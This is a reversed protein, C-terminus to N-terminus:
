RVVTFTITQSWPTGNLDTAVVTVSHRGSRNGHVGEGLTLTEGRTGSVGDAPTLQRTGIMWRISNLIFNEPNELSVAVPAGTTSVEHPVTIEGIGSLDEFTITFTAPFVTVPGVTASLEGHNGLRTVVVRIYSGVDGTRVVFTSGTAVPIDAFVTGDGIYWRYSVAGGTGELAPVATLTAGPHPGGDITVTGELLPYTVPGVTASLEGTNGTRTVVVRIHYGMNEYLVDFTSGTEGSIDTFTTGDGIQWQYSVTGETGEIAPVATLTVGPHPGGTITVTGGLQTKTVPGVPDSAVEGFYNARTVVARIHDGYNDLGLNFTAATAAPIDTFATGDGRQWRLAYVGTSELNVNATLTGWVVPNGTITVEGHLTPHTVAVTSASTVFGESQARRVVVRFEYGLDAVTVPRTAATAGTISTFEGSTRRYWQFLATGVGGLGDINARLTDGVYPHNGPVVDLAVGRLIEVAVTGGSVDPRIPNVPDSAVSGDFGSARVVVRVTVAAPMDAESVTYTENTEGTIATFGYGTDREWQFSFGDATNLDLIVYLEEGLVPNGDITVTGALTPAPPTSPCGAFALALGIIGVAVISFRIKKM